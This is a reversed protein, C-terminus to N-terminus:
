FNPVPINELVFRIHRESLKFALTYRITAATGCADCTGRGSVTMENNSGGGSTGFSGGGLDRVPRGDANLVETKLVVVEPPTEDRWLHVSGGMLLDAGAKDYKVKVRYEYRNEEVVAQEMLVEMGPALEVWTDSAAFPIDVMKFEDAVLVNMAWEVRSLVEPYVADPEMPLSLSFRNLRMTSPLGAPVSLSTPQQYWRVLSSSTAMSSVVRGDQDLAVASAPIPSWGILGNSDTIEVTSVLSLSWQPGLAEVDPQVAPNYLRSTMSVSISEWDARLHKAPDWTENPDEGAPPVIGNPDNPDPAAMILIDGPAPQMPQEAAVAGACLAVVILSTLIASRM